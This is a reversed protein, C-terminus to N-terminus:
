VEIMEQKWQDMFDKHLHLTGDSGLVRIECDVRIIHSTQILANGAKYFKRSDNLVEHMAREATYKVQDYGTYKCKHTVRYNQVPLHILLSIYIQEEPKANDRYTEVQEM